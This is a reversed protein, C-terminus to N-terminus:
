ASLSEECLDCGFACYICPDPGAQVPKKTRESQVYKLWKELREAQYKKLNPPLMEPARGIGAHEYAAHLDKSMLQRGLVTQALLRLEKDQEM